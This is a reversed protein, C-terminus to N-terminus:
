SDRPLKKTSIVRKGGLLISATASYRMKVLDSDFAIINIYDSM